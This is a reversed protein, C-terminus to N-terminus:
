RCFLVTKVSDPRLPGWSDWCLSFPFNTPLSPSMAGVALRIAGNHGATSLPSLLMKTPCFPTKNKFDQRLVGPGSTESAGGIKLM